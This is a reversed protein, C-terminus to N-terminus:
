DSSSPSPKEAAIRRQTQDGTLWRWLKGPWQKDMCPREILVYYVGGFVITTAMAIMLVVFFPLPIYAARHFIVSEAAPLAQGLSSLVLNHTLYISYCMGGVTAVFPYRFFRRMLPGKFAGIYTVLALFPIFVHSYPSESAFILLWFPISAVDWLWHEPIRAWDTVYLDCLLFGAVFYQLYYLISLTIFPSAAWFRVQVLGMVLILAGLSVRRLWAPRLSLLLPALLPTFCYFQIEVELSWAPPNIPNMSGFILSHSYFFGALLPRWMAAAQHSVLALMAFRLAMILLYPPELRTVRRLFYAKLGVPQEGCLAVRAFPMGLIFGSIIFFLDVGRAGNAGLQMLWGALTGAPDTHRVQIITHLFIVSTIAIFRLGDIEPIYQGSSTQRRLQFSAPM